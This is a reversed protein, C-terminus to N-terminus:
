VNSLYGPRFVDLYSYEMIILAGGAPWLFNSTKCWSLCANDLKCGVECIQYSEQGSSM